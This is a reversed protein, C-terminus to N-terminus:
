VVGGSLAGVYEGDLAMNHKVKKACTPGYQQGVKRIIMPRHCRACKSKMGEAPNMHEDSGPIEQRDRSAEGATNQISEPLKHVGQGGPIGPGPDRKDSM